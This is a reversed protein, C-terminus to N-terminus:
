VRSSEIRWLLQDLRDQGFFPEGNWSFTPVGWHGSELLAKQNSAFHSEADKTLMDPQEILDASLGCAELCGSLHPAEDWGTTQGSWILRMLSAYLDYGKSRQHAQFLLNYLRFARRQDPGPKWVGGEVWAVPSPAPEGYSLGLFDATRAVDIDFYVLEMRPTDTWFDTMRLVGPLVPRMIISVRTDRAIKDLRDLALYCYPSSLSGYFVIESSM